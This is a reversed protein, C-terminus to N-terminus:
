SNKVVKKRGWIWYVLVGVVPVVVMATMAMKIGTVLYSKWITITAILALVGNVLALIGMLIDKVMGFLSQGDALLILIEM